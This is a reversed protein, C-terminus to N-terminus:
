NLFIVIENKAKAQVAKEIDIRSKLVIQSKKDEVYDIGDQISDAIFTYGSNEPISVIYQNKFPKFLLVLNQEIEAKRYLDNMLEMNKRKFSNVVHAYTDLTFAVSSHGLIESLVKKDMGKEMADTAFTHRLAHFTIGEINCKDLLRNYYKKFTTPDLYKGNQDTIVFEPRGGEDEQKEKWVKLDAIANPPLPITRKSNKTKPEDFYISTSQKSNSDFNKCRHLIRRVKLENRDFDIDEWKLGLLEGLRLGTCLTLRIFTGYRYFYSEKILREKQEHSLIRIEKKDVKPLTVYLACNQKILGDVVAQNMAQRLIIAMNRVTKASLGYDLKYNFFDQLVSTTINKITTDKFFIFHNQIHGFYNVYTTRKISKKEYKDLWIILWDYLSM